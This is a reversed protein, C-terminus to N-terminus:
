RVWEATQAGVKRVTLKRSFAEDVSLLWARFAAYDQTSIRARTMSMMVDCTLAGDVVATTLKVSGFPSDLTTPGPLQEPSFGDPLTYRFQLTNKWVGPFVLDHKREPLAAMVQSFSRGAGFPFFRLTGPLVEAYRPVQMKFHTRLPEELKTVDSVEIQSVQLGPFSQAWAQEFTAKRTTVAQYARRQEPAGQGQVQTQGSLEASGDAKLNVAITVQTLNDDAKGEPTTLARSPGDPEVILVNAVRDAPPLEMSGHFEATGDLFLNLKPVYAIAHNFAALSAPQVPLQGLHRMRLLVMRADVGAYKLMATILAAKDKCDGFRRALVRDVRYPKYGHIGFELAVYRTNTVVFGYILQVVKREDKRNVGALLKDTTRKLEESPVLQDRVLGWYYRGVDEWTKYTSIHLTASVEALGPMAPEPVLKPVKVAEFRYDLKGDDAKTFTPKLWPPLQEQNWYLPRGPPMHVWYRYHLKPYYNQVSEVDGWYDSLLNDSATDELRWQLELVDGPALAPFSLIRARVDYYMGTWPENLNRDSDNFSDIISGDPKTIRAKLVRVEQRDPSYSIPFQRFSEVGRTSLVKVALQSFRASLGTAQVRIDQVDALIVADEGLNNQAEAILPGLPLASDASRSSDEGQLTRLMEKLTANQPRLTLSRTFSALAEEKHSANLLARGEREHVEADDPAFRKAETFVAKGADFRGNAMLLEALRLRSGNDYPDLSLIRRFQEVASDLQELDALLNALTRRTQTDDFRLALAMRARGVAEDWRDMRRSIGVSERAVLPSHNLTEFAAEIERLALAKDGLADLARAKLLRAPAFLPFRALLENSLALTLHPHEAELELRALDLTLWDRTTSRPAGTVPPFPADALGLSVFRRRQNHDDALNAATLLIDARAPNKESAEAAREAEHLATRDKEDYARYWALVTAYDARLAADHPAAKVLQAFTDVLTPMPQPRPPAGRELPPAKDPLVAQVNVPRDGREWRLYFGLPGSEQCVKLLVRNLGKRLTVQVKAQDLRPLHYRNDSSVKVGNIFLRYAGSTGLSLNVRTEQEAKLFTAAYAVAENNPKLLTSLDVYGDVSRAPTKQWTVERTKAAYKASWDLNAAEPGFDTDCGSKGENDFSGVAYFDQIFGMPELMEAAKTTRGRSREVDAYFIRALTRVRPETIGRYLLNAYPEALLNLDDVDDILAHLRFLYAAGRVTHGTQKAKLALM